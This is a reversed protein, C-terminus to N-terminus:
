WMGKDKVPRPNRLTVSPLSEEEREREREALLEEDAVIGYGGFSDVFDRTIRDLAGVSVVRCM